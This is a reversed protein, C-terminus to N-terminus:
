ICHVTVLLGGRPWAHFKTEFYSFREMVGKRGGETGGERGGEKERKRKGEREREREKENM